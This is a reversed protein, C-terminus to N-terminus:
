LGYMEARLQAYKDQAIKIAHALDPADVTASFVTSRMGHKRKPTLLAIFSDTRTSKM